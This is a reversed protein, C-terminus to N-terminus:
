ARAGTRVRVGVWVGTRGGGWVCLNEGGGGACVCVTDCMAGCVCVFGGVWVDSAGECGCERARGGDGVKERRESDRWRGRADVPDGECGGERARGGDGRADACACTEAERAGVTEGKGELVGDCVCVCMDSGRECGGERARGGDSGRVRRIERAGVKERDGEMMVECGCMCIDRGGECGGDGGRRCDSWPVHVRV